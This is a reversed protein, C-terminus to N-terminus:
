ALVSKARISSWSSNMMPWSAFTGAKTARGQPASFAAIESGASRLVARVKRPDLDLAIQPPLTIELRLPM